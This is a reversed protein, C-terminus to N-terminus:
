DSYSLAVAGLLQLGLQLGEDEDPADGYAIVVVSDLSEDVIIAQGHLGVAALSTSSLRWWHALYVGDLEKSRRSYDLWERSVIRMGDWTGGNRVMWGFRAWDRVTADAGIGGVWRGSRDLLPTMSTIGLPRFLSDQLFDVLATGGGLKENLYSALIASTGTSYAFTSGPETVLEKRAAYDAVGAPSTLMRAPDGDDFDEDWSLGSRMHLMDEVSISARPDGAPWSPHLGTDALTIVGRDVAIGTAVSLVSKAVSFSLMVSSTDYGDAYREFIVRGGKIVLAAKPGGEGPGRAFVVAARSALDAAVDDTVVGSEWEIGPFVAEVAPPDTAVTLTETGTGCSVLSVALLLATVTRAARSM